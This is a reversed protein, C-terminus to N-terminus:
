LHVLHDEGGGHDHGCDCADSGRGRHLDDAAYVLKLSMHAGACRLLAVTREKSSPTSCLQRLHRDGERFGDNVGHRNQRTKVHSKRIHVVVVQPAKLYGTLTEPLGTPWDTSTHMVYPNRSQDPFQSSQYSPSINKATRPSHSSGYGAQPGTEILAGALNRGRGASIGTACSSGSSTFVVYGIDERVDYRLESWERLKLFRKSNMVLDREAQSVRRTLEYRLEKEKFEIRSQRSRITRLYEIFKFNMGTIRSDSGGRNKRRRQIFKITM